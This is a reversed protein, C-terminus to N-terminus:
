GLTQLLADLRKQWQGFDMNPVYFTEMEDHLQKTQALASVARHLHM